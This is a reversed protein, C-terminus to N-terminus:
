VNLNFLNDNEFYTEHYAFPNKLRRKSFLFIFFCKSKNKYTHFHFFQNLSNHMPRKKPTIKNPFYSIM